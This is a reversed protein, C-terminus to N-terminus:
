WGVVRLLFPLNGSSCSTSKLMFIWWFFQVFWCLFSDDDSKWWKISIFLPTIYQMFISFLLVFCMEFSNGNPVVCMFHWIYIHPDSFGTCLFYLCLDSTPLHCFLLTSDSFGVCFFLVFTCVYIANGKRLICSLSDLPRPILRCFPLQFPPSADSTSPLPAYFYCSRLITPTHPPSLFHWGWQM